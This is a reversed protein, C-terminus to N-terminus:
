TDDVTLKQEKTQKRTSLRGYEQMLAENVGKRRSWMERRKRLGRENSDARM